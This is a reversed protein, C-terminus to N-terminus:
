YFWRNLITNPSYSDGNNLVLMFCDQLQDLVMTDINIQANRWRAVLESAVGQFGTVRNDSNTNTDSNTETTTEGTNNVESKSNTDTAGTAYDGMAALMTQPTQSNVARAGSNTETLTENNASASEVSDINSETVSHIDMTSLADYDFSESEYLKNYYPMVQQMKRRLVLRFNDITETGIERNYYEDIIKGNLISRYNEDFIPYQALGIAAGNDSLIPLDDYKVGNFTFSGRDIEYDDPDISEGYVHELVEKLSLTYTSM